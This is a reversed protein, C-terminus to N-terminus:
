AGNLKAERSDHMLRIVLWETLFSMTEVVSTTVMSNSEYRAFFHRLMPLTLVLEVTMM